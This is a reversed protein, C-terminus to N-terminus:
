WVPLIAGTVWDTKHTREAPGVSSHLQNSMGGRSVCLCICLTDNERENTTCTDIHRDTQQLTTPSIRCGIHRRTAAM